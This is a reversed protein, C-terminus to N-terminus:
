QHIIALPATRDPFYRMYVPVGKSLAYEVADLRIPRSLLNQYDSLSINLKYDGETTTAPDQLYFGRVDKMYTISTTFGSDKAGGAFYAVSLDSGDLGLLTRKGKYNGIFGQTILARNQSLLNLFSTDLHKLRADLFNRNTNLYKPAHFLAGKIGISELFVSFIKSTALEGYSPILAAFSESPTLNLYVDKYLRLFDENFEEFARKRYKGLLINSILEIHEEKFEKLSMKIVLEAFEKENKSLKEEELKNKVILNLLRTMGKKASVVFVSKTFEIEGRLFTQSDLMTEPIFYVGGLKFFKIKEM